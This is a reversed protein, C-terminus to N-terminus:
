LVTAFADANGTFLYEDRVRGLFCHGEGFSSV